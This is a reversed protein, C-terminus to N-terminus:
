RQCRRSTTRSGSLDRHQRQRGEDACSVGRGRLL